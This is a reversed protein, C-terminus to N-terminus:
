HVVVGREMVLIVRELAVRRGQGPGHAHVVRLDYRGPPLGRIRATYAMYADAPACSRGDPEAVVRMTLQGGRHVLDASLTRCPDSVRMMRRVVITHHGGVVEALSEARADLRSLPRSDLEVIAADAGHSCAAALLLGALIPSRARM